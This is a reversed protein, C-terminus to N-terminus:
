KLTMTNEPIIIHLKNDLLYATGHLADYAWAYIELEGAPLDRATFTSTWKCSLYNWQNFLRTDKPKDTFPGVTYEFLIYQEDYKYTLLVANAPEKQGPLFAKGYAEYKNSHIKRIGELTGSQMKPNSIHGQINRINLDEIYPHKWFGSNRIISVEFMLQLFHSTIVPHNRFETHSPLTNMFAFCAREGLRIQHSKKMRQIGYLSTSSSTLTFFFILFIILIKVIIKQRIHHQVTYQYIHALLFVLAVTIYISFSTYRYAYLQEEGADARGFTIMLATLISYGAIILWPISCKFTSANTKIINFMCFLFTSFIIYGSIATIQISFFHNLPLGLLCIFYHFAKIPNALIYSQLQRSQPFDYGWFFIILNCVMFFTLLIIWFRNHVPQRYKYMFLPILLVWCLMGNAFSFTAISSYLIAFIVKLPFLCSSYFIALSATLCAIPIFIMIQNGWLWNTEQIPSFILLNALLTLFFCLGHHYSTTKKLIYYINFSTLGALLLSVFMQFRVDWDTLFALGIVILRPIVVRSENGQKFLDEFTLFSNATKSILIGPTFLGDEHPINVAYKYILITLMIAPLLTLLCSSTTLIKKKFLM